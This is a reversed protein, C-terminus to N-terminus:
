HLWFGGVKGERTSLTALADDTDEGFSIKWLTVRYGMQKLEGLYTVEPHQALKSGFREAVADFQAQKLRRFSADGDEIFAVYDDHEIAALLKTTLAAEAEPPEAASALRPSAAFFAIALALVSAFKTKM